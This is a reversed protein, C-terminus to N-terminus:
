LNINRAIATPSLLKTNISFSIRQSFNGLSQTQQMINPSGFLPFYIGAAGNAIDIMFGGNFMIQDAPQMVVVSPASNLFFGLDFYPKIALWKVGFPLRIPIDAKLNLAILMKNTNGDAVSASIPTKFGGDAIQIQRSMLGEQARRSLFMEDYHYDNRNRSAMQLPMAGFRRDSNFVFGGAFARL